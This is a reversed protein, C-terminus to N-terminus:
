TKRYFIHQGIQVTKTKAYAWYPVIYDAHYFLAGYTVDYLENYNLYVDLAVQQASEYLKREADTYRNLVAKERLKPTCWWSFQCTRNTQQRVVSCIDDPYGDAQVRNLTVMAVAYKGATPERGAEFLINQALCDIEQKSEPNLANYTVTIPKRVVDRGFIVFSFLLVIALTIGIRISINM